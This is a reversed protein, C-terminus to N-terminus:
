GIKRNNEQHLRSNEEISDKFDRITIRKKEDLESLEKEFDSEKAYAGILKIQCM